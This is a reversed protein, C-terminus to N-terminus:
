KTDILQNRALESHTLAVGMTGVTRYFSSISEESCREFFRMFWKLIHIRTFEEILEDTNLTSRESGDILDRAKMSHLFAMFELETSICDAPINQTGSRKLGASRYCREADLAAPNIFVRTGRSAEGSRMLEEDLFVGEYLRIIPAEPHNFLRSYERRLESLADSNRKLELSTAHLLHSISEIVKDQIGIERAIGEFDRNISGDALGDVIEQMPFQTFLVLLSYLDAMASEYQIDSIETRVPISLSEQM